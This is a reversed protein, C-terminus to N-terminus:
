RFLKALNREFVYENDSSLAARFSYGLRDFKQIDMPDEINNEAMYRVMEGRDMKAYTGKTVLKDGSLECFTIMIYHDLSTLHKEICKSYEKSALNIIIRSNDIVSAYLTDEEFNCIKGNTSRELYFLSAFVSGESYGSATRKFM